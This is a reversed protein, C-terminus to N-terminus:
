VNGGLSLVAQLMKIIQTLEYACFFATLMIVILMIIVFMMQKNEPQPRNKIRMYLTQIAGSDFQDFCVVQNFDHNLINKGQEDVAIFNVGMEKSFYDKYKNLALPIKHIEKNRTKFSYFGEEFQGARYYVDTV